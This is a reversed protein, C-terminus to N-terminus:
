HMRDLIAHPPIAAQAGKDHLFERTRQALRASPHEVGAAAGAAHQRAEAGVREADLVVRV